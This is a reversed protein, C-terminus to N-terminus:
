LKDSFMWGRAGIAGLTWDHVAGPPIKDGETFDPHPMRTSPRAALSPAAFLWFLAAAAVSAVALQKIIM